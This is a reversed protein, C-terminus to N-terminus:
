EYADRANHETYAVLKVQLYHGMPLLYYLFYTKGKFHNTMANRIILVKRLFIHSQLLFDHTHVTLASSQTFSRINFTHTLSCSYRLLTYGM